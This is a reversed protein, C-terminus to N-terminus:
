PNEAHCGGLAQACESALKLWYQRKEEPRMAMLKVTEENAIVKALEVAAMALSTDTNGM